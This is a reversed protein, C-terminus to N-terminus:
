GWNLESTQANLHLLETVNCGCLGDYLAFTKIDIRIGSSFDGMGMRHEGVEPRILVKGDFYGLM